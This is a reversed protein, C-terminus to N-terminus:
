SKRFLTATTPSKFYLQFLGVQGAAITLVNSGTIVVTSPVVIGTSLVLTVLSAGASNDVTFDYKDGREAKLNGIVQVATPLTLNTAAASTSTIVGKGLEAATLTATANKAVKKQFRIRFRNGTRIM